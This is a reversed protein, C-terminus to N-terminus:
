YPTPLPGRCLLGLRVFGESSTIISLCLGERATEQLSRLAEDPLRPFDLVYTIRVLAVRLQSNFDYGPLKM